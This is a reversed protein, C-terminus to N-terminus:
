TAPAASNPAPMKNFNFFLSMWLKMGSLYWKPSGGIKNIIRPDIIKAVDNKPHQPAILSFVQISVNTLIFQCSM